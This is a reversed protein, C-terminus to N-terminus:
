VDAEILPGLYASPVHRTASAVTAPKSLDGLPPHRRPVTSAHLDLDEPRELDAVVGAPRHLDRTAPQAGQQDPEREVGSPRDAHACQHVCDPAVLRGGVLGVRQLREDGPQPPGEAVCADNHLRLGAVPQRGLRLRDVGVAEFPEGALPRLCQAAAVVALGALQEGRRDREPATGREGVRGACREARVRRAQVVQPQDGDEVADLGIELEGVRGCQNGLQLREGRLMRQVLPEGALQHAGQTRASALRIRQAGVLLQADPQGIFEADVRARLQLLDM